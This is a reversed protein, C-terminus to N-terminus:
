TSDHEALIEVCLELCEGCISFKGRRILRTSMPTSDSEYGLKATVVKMFSCFSCESHRETKEAQREDQVNEYFKGVCENCIWIDAKEILVAVEHETKHCFSCCKDTSKTSDEITNM